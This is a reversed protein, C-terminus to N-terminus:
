CKPSFVSFGRRVKAPDDPCPAFFRGGYFMEQVLLSLWERVVGEGTGTEEGMLVNMLIDSVRWHFGDYQMISRMSSEVISDREVRISFYYDELDSEDDDDMNGITIPPYDTLPVAATAAVSAARRLLGYSGHIWSMAFSCLKRESVIRLASGVDGSWKHMSAAIQLIVGVDEDYRQSEAYKELFTAHERGAACLIDTAHAFREEEQRWEYVEHEQLPRAVAQSWCQAGRTLLEALGELKCWTCRWEHPARLRELQGIRYDFQEWASARVLADLLCSHVGLKNRAYVAAWLMKYRHVYAIETGRGSLLLWRVESVGASPMM